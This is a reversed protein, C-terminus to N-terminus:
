VRMQQAEDPICPNEFCAALLTSLVTTGKQSTRCMCPYRKIVSIRPDLASLDFALCSM